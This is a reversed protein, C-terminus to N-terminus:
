RSVARDRYAAVPWQQDSFHPLCVVGQFIGTANATLAFDAISGSLGLVVAHRTEIQQGSDDDTLVGPAQAVCDGGLSARTEATRRLKERVDRWKSPCMDKERAFVPPFISSIRGYPTMRDWGACVGM